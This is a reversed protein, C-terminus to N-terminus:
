EIAKWLNEYGQKLVSSPTKVADVAPAPERHMASLAKDRETPAPRANRAWGRALSLDQEFYDWAEVMNSFKLCGPRRQDKKIMAKLYRCVLVLDAETFGQKMWHLWAQERHYIGDLRLKQGTEREYAAHLKAIAGNPFAETSM